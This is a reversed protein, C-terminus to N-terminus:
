YSLTQYEDFNNYVSIYEDTLHDVEVHLSKFTELYGTVNQGQYAKAIPMIIDDTSKPGSQIQNILHQFPRAIFTM